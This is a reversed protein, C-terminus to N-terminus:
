VLYEGLISLLYRHRLLIRSASQVLLKKVKDLYSIDRVIRVPLAKNLRVDFEYEDMLKDTVINRARFACPFFRFLYNLQSFEVCHISFGFLLNKIKVYLRHSFVRTNFVENLM